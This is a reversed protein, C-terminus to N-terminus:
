TVRSFALIRPRSRTRRRVERPRQRQRAAFPVVKPARGAVAYVLEFRSIGHDDEARAEIAVEELPTIQQDGAPRLIRVDPPRDDMVRLFYETDDPRGSVMAILSDSAIRTTERSSSTAKSCAIALGAASGRAPRGGGAAAMRSCWRAPHSRSTPTSACTFRRARRRTSTAATANRVRRCTPSPRISTACISGRRGTRRRARDRHLGGLAELRGHRSVPVNPRDIRVVFQFGEGDPTMAVTRARPGAEVTLRPTFRTLFRSGARVSARITLPQGLPCVPM